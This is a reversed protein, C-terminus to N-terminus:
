TDKTVDQEDSVAFNAWITRGMDAATHEGDCCEWILQASSDLNHIAEEDSSYLFTEEGMDKVTVGSKRVPKLPNMIM